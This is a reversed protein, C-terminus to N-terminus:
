AKLFFRMMARSADPGRPDTYSGAASGGSWAHGAGEVTWAEARAVGRQDVWTERTYPAGGHAQGREVTPATMGDIAGALVHRANIPAVTRDVSGHFTITRVPDVAAPRGSAGNKMAALASPLDRAAGCALGSHVGVARFIDPYEHALNAAAAGGASLGAVFVRAADVPFDRAVDGVIGALLAAEGGGRRQDVPKFWNWCKASNHAATQEPYAVLLGMEDALANMGTGLAFDDPSQTCGHLMLVLPRPAAAVGPPVYLKYRRSAPGATITRWEFRGAVPARPKPEPSLTRAAGAQAPAALSLAEPMRSAPKDRRGGGDGLLRERLLATAEGLRGNRTLQLVDKMNPMITMTSKEQAAFTPATM